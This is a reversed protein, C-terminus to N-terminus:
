DFIKHAQPRLIITTIKIMIITIIITIIIITNQIQLTTFVSRRGKVLNAGRPWIILGLDLEASKTQNILDM